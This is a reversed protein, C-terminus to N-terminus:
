NVLIGKNQAATKIARNNGPQLEKSELKDGFREPKVGRRYGMVCSEHIFCQKADDDGVVPMFNNVLPNAYIVDDVEFFCGIGESVADVAFCMQVDRGDVGVLDITSCRPRPDKCQTVLLYRNLPTLPSSM